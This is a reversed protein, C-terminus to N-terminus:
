AADDPVASRLYPALAKQRRQKQKDREYILKVPFAVVNEPHAAKMIRKIAAECKKWELFEM